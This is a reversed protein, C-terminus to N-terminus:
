KVAVALNNDNEAFRLNITEGPQVVQTHSVSRTEGNRVVEVRIPYYMTKGAELKPTVYARNEGTLTMRKDAVYVIADAPVTLNLAARNKSVLLDRDSPAYAAGPGKNPGPPNAPGPGGAPGPGPGTAPVSSPGYTGGGSSGYGGGYGGGGYGYSGSSGGGYGGGGYGYSGSSGGGYGGGGYGYSGSSGGGYGGGYGYSGSSGYSYGGYSGSSGGSSGHRHRAEAIGGAALAAVAGAVLLGRGSIFGAM